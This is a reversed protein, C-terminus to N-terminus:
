GKVRRRELDDEKLERVCLPCRCEFGYSHYLHRRRRHVPAPGPAGGAAGGAAGWVPSAPDVYAITLEEGAPIPRRARLALSAGPAMVVDLNPECSHNVFSAHAYLATGGPVDGAALSAAPSSSSSSCSAPDDGTSCSSSASPSSPPAGDADTTSCCGGGSDGGQGGGAAGGSPAHEDVARSSVSPAADIPCRITFSNLRLTGMLRAYARLGFVQEFFADAGPGKVKERLVATALAHGRVWVTPFSDTEPLTVSSLRAVATWYEGFDVGPSLSLAVAALAARPFNAGFERSFADLTRLPPPPQAAGPATTPCLIDHGLRSADRELCAPSCYRHGCGGPCAPAGPGLSRFCAACAADLTRPDSVAVIPEDVLVVDGPAVARPTFLGRGAGDRKALVLGHKALFSDAFADTSVARRSTSTTFLGRGVGDRKALVLGHKALFSDAFADTSFARQSTSTTTLWPVVRCLRARSSVMM